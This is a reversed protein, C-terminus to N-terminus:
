GLFLPFVGWFPHNIISFGMLISSKPTGNNKSVGLYHIQLNPSISKNNFCFERCAGLPPLRLVCKKLPVLHVFVTKWQNDM